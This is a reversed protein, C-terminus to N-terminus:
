ARSQPRLSDAAANCLGPGENPTSLCLRLALDHSGLVATSCARSSCVDKSVSNVELLMAVSTHLPLAHLLATKQARIRFKGASMLITGITYNRVASTTRLNPQAGPIQLLCQVEAEGFHLSSGSCSCSSLLLALYWWGRFYGQWSIGHNGAARDEEQRRHVVLKFRARSEQM